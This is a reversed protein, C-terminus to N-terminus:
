DGVGRSEEIQKEAVSGRAETENVSWNAARRLRRSSVAIEPAREPNRSCLTRARHTERKSSASTAIGPLEFVIFEFICDRYLSGYQRGPYWSLEFGYLVPSTRSYSTNTLLRNQHQLIDHQCFTKWLRSRAAFSNVALM